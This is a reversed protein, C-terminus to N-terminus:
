GFDYEGYLKIARSEHAEIHLRGNISCLCLNRNNITKLMEVVRAETGSSPPQFGIKRRPKSDERATAIIEIAEELDDMRLALARIVRDDTTM